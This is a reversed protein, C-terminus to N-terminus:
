AKQKFKIVKSNGEQAEIHRDLRKHIRCAMIHLTKGTITKRFYRRKKRSVIYSGLKFLIIAYIITSIM